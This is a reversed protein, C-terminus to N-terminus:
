VQFKKSLEKLALSIVDNTDITKYNKIVLGFFLLEVVLIIVLIILNEYVIEKYSINKRSLTKILYSFYIAVASFITVFIFAQAILKENEDQVKKDLSKDVDINIPPLTAGLAKSDKKIDDVIKTIQNEVVQEEVWKGFTFYLCPVLFAYLGLLMLNTILAKTGLFFKTLLLIIITSGGAIFFTYLM